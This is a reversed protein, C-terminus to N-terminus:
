ANKPRRIWRLTFHGAALSCFGVLLRFLLLALGARFAVVDDFGARFTRLIIDVIYGLLCAGVLLGTRHWFSSPEWLFIALSVFIVPFFGQTVLISITEPLPVTRMFFGSFVATAILIAARFKM